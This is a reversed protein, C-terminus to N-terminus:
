NPQRETHCLLPHLSGACAIPKLARAPFLLMAKKNSHLIDWRRAPRRGGAPAPSFFACAPAPIKTLWPNTFIQALIQKVDM